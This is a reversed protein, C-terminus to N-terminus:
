QGGRNRYGSPSHGTIRKFVRSFYFMDRYGLAEGIEKISMETNLLINKAEAVKLRHIFENLPYGTYEHVIRRLTSVSIHHRAALEEPERRAYLSGSIDEIVKLVFRGRNGTEAQDAQAVLEYLFAELLLSARDLNSPVGSELLMFMMEMRNVASDDIAAKQVQAPHQLWSGLWEGVREGEVTFYYEDWYGDAHPGYNFEAGPFLCFWSGAPVEQKEGGDVQYYGGGGTIVVFAWYSFKAQVRRMTRGPLHGANVVTLSRIKRKSADVVPNFVRIPHPSIMYDLYKTM